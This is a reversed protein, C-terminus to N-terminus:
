GSNHHPRWSSGRLCCYFSLCLACTYYCRSGCKVRPTFPGLHGGGGGARPATLPALRDDTMAPPWPVVTGM